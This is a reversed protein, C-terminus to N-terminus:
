SGLSKTQLHIASPSVNELWTLKAKLSTHAVFLRIEFSIRWYVNGRQIDQATAKTSITGKKIPKLISRLPSLDAFVEARLRFGPRVNETAHLRDTFLDGTQM